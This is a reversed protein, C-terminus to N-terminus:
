NWRTERRRLTLTRCELLQADALSQPMSCLAGGINPLAAMVNPVPGCQLKLSNQSATANYHMNCDLDQTTKYCEAYRQLPWADSVARLEWSHKYWFPWQSLYEKKSPLKASDDTASGCREQGTATKTVETYDVCHENQMCNVSSFQHSDHMSTQRPHM